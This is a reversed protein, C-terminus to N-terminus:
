ERHLATAVEAETRGQTENPAAGLAHSALELTLIEGDFAFPPEYEDCVPLGRDHGVLLGGGGIQWRFPLDGELVGRAVIAGDIALTLSRAARQYEVVLRHRGQRLRAADPAVVRTLDGFLSIALVLQGDLVYWAWGNNWDGLACLVGSGATEPVEVEATATFGAGLPPLFDEAVAGDGSRYVVRAPVPWPNPDLAMARMILSDDLPLVQNRGAESWWLEVLQQLREPEVAALDDAESFDDGLRYLSWRDRDFDHSGPVLEREISLQQGVHDTTAKWGDHVIARSGLMEFYQTTRPPPADADDFTALLSSGAIPQQDVGDVMKPAEVGAADLVTPMLDIAHCFQGRVEGGVTIREPWHAVLPTRVGGLWTYRKWLKFPTNGAWAWGWPYHNYARPGGLDSYRAMTDGIDDVRDHTFRHENLSGHPGGEASAGNDSFVLLLTDDLVGFRELADVLRALQADTHSFFGAFVEMMRAFLRRQDAPLDDWPQVWSPRETLTTGPPVVGSALQREFAHERWAEWGTDFRGRYRDIWQRPVHHPAHMAGTALWLFFPKTPTAQRQDQVLRIARDVLDETLHYGDDPSAPPDVFGNDCVLEPAWQNTDGGLFGYYREFGM